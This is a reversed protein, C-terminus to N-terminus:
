VVIATCMGFLFLTFFVGIVMALSYSVKGLGPNSVGCQPCTKAGLSVPQKCERCPKLAM